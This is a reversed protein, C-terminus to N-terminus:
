LNTDFFSSQMVESGIGEILATSNTCHLEAGRGFFVTLKDFWKKGWSGNGSQIRFVGNRAQRKSLTTM